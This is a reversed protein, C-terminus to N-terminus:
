FKIEIKQLEVPLSIEKYWILHRYVASIEEATLDYLQLDARQDYYGLNSISGRPTKHIGAKGFYVAPSGTTATYYGNNKIMEKMLTWFEAKAENAKEEKAHEETAIRVLPFVFPILRRNIDRAITLPKKSAMMEIKPNKMNSPKHKSLAPNFFGHTFKYRPNPSKPNLVKVAIFWESFQENTLRYCKSKDYESVPPMKCVAWVHGASSVPLHQCVENLHELNNM